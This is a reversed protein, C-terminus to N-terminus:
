KAKTKEGKGPKDGTFGYKERMSALSAAGFHAGRYDIGGGENVNMIEAPDDTVHGLGALHGVEHALTLAMSGAYSNILARILESRKDKALDSAFVYSGDLYERDSVTLPPTLAHKEFITRRIFSTYVRCFTGFAEGGAEAHDGGFLAPWVRQKKKEREKANAHVLFCIRLSKGVVPTGDDNRGFKTSAIAVVRAMIEERVLHDLVPDAGGTSLGMQKLDERATSFGSDSAWECLVWQAGEEPQFQRTRWKGYPEGVQEQPKREAAAPATSASEGVKALAVVGPVFPMVREGECLFVGLPPTFSGSKDAGYRGRLGEVTQTALAAMVAAAERSNATDIAAALVSIGECGDGVGWAPVGHDREYDARFQSTTANSAPSVAQVVFVTRKCARVPEGFSRATLVVPTNDSALHTTLFQAVASPDADLLLVEPVGDTYLKALAKSTITTEYECVLTTPASFGAKQLQKGLEKGEKSADRVFGVKTMCFTREILRDVLPIASASPLAFHVCPLKSAAAAKKVADARWPDLPALVGAVLSKQLTAVAAPAESPTAAPALVLELKSGDIGGKSNIAQVARRCGRLFAVDGHDPSEVAVVGLRLPEQPLPVCSLLLSLTLM